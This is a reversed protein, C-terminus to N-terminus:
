YCYIDTPDINTNFFFQVDIPFIFNQNNMLFEWRSKYREKLAKKFQTNIFAPSYNLIDEIGEKKPFFSELEQKTLLKLQVQSDIKDNQQAKKLKIYKGNTYCWLGYSSPLIKMVKNVHSEDIVLYNFEFALLYDNMQKTVKTLTDLKSKIEFSSTHGNVTLFDVRSNNVQIEFAAVLNKKNIFKKFLNYKHIEEGKYNQVLINNVEKHLEYKSFHKFNNTPYIEKLLNTLQVPYNLPNYKKALQNVAKEINLNNSVTLM